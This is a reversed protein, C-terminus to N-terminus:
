GDSREERVSDILNMLFTPNRNPLLERYLVDREREARELRERLQALERGPTPNNM